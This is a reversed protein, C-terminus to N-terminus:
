NTVLVELKYVFMYDTDMNKERNESMLMIKTYKWLYRKNNSGKNNSVM